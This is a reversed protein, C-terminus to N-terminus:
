ELDGGDREDLDKKLRELKDQLMTPILELLNGRGALYCTVAFAIVLMAAGIEELM